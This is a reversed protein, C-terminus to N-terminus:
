FFFMMILETRMQPAQLSFFYRSKEHELTVYFPTLFFFFFSFPLSFCIKQFDLFSPFAASQHQWMKEKMGGRGPHVTSPYLNEGPLRPCHLHFSTCCLLQWKGMSWFCHFLQAVSLQGRGCSCVCVALARPGHKIVVAWGSKKALDLLNLNWCCLFVGNCLVRGLRHACTQPPIRYASEIWYLRSLGPWVKHGGQGWSLGRFTHVLFDRECNVDM